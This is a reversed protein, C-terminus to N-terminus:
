RQWQVFVYRNPTKSPAVGIGKSVQLMELEKSTFTRGGVAVDTRVLNAPRKAVQHVDHSRGGILIPKTTPKAAVAPAAKFRDPFMRKANEAVVKAAIGSKLKAEYIKMLERQQSPSKMKGYKDSMEAVYDNDKGLRLHLDKLIERALNELETRPV